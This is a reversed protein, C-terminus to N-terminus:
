PLPTIRRDLHHLWRTINGCQRQSAGSRSCGARIALHSSVLRQEAEGLALDDCKGDDDGHGDHGDNHTPGVDLLEDALDDGQRGDPDVHDDADEDEDLIGEEEAEDEGALCRHDQAAHRCRAPM